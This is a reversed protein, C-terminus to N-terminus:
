LNRCSQGCFCSERFSISLQCKPISRGNKNGCNAIAKASLLVNNLEQRGAQRAYEADAQLFSAAHSVARQGM